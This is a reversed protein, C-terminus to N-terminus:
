SRGFLYDINKMFKSQMVSQTLAEAQDQLYDVNKAFTTDKLDRPAQTQLYRVNRGFTSTTTDVAEQPQSQGFRLLAAM